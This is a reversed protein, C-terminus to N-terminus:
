FGRELPGALTKGLYEYIGSLLWMESWGEAEVSNIGHTTMGSELM